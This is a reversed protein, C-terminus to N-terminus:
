FCFSCIGGNRSLLAFAAVYAYFACYSVVKETKICLTYFFIVSFRHFVVDKKVNVTHKSLRWRYVTTDGLVCLEFSVYALTSFRM